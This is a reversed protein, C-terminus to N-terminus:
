WERICRVGRDVESFGVGKGGQGCGEETAGGFVFMIEAARIGGLEFITSRRRCASDVFRLSCM